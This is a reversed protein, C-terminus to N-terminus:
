SKMMLYERENFDFREGLIEEITITRRVLPPFWYEEGSYIEIRGAIKLAQQLYDVFQRFDERSTSWVQLERENFNEWDPGYSFACACGMHSGVEYLFQGFLFKRIVPFEKESCEGLHFEPKEENWAVLPLPRDAALFLYTCM